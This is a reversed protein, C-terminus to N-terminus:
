FKRLVNRALKCSMVLFLELTDQEKSYFIEESDDLFTIVIIEADRRDCGALGPLVDGM